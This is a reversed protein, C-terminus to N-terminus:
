EKKYKDVIISEKKITMVSLLKKWVREYEDSLDETAASIKDFGMLYWRIFARKLSALLKRGDVFGNPTVMKVIAIDTDDYVLICDRHEDNWWQLVWGITAANSNLKKNTVGYIM